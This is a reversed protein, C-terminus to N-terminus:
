MRSSSRVVPRLTGSSARAVDVGTDGMDHYSPRYRIDQYFVSFASVVAARETRTRGAEPPGGFRTPAIQRQKGSKQAPGQTKWVHGCRAVARFSICLM